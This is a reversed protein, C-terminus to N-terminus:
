KLEQWDACLITWDDHWMTITSVGGTEPCFTKCGATYISPGINHTIGDISLLLRVSKLLSHQYLRGPVLFGQHHLQTHNQV